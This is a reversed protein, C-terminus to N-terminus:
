DYAREKGSLWDAEKGVCVACIRHTTSGLFLRDKLDVHWLSICKVLRKMEYRAPLEWDSEIKNRDVDVEIDTGYRYWAHRKSLGKVRRELIVWEYQRPYEAWNERFCDYLASPTARINGGIFVQWLEKDSRRIFLGTMPKLLYVQRPEKGM